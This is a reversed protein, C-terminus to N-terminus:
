PFFRILRMSIPGIEPPSECLDKSQSKSTMATPKLGCTFKSEIPRLRGSHSESRWIKRTVSKGEPIYEM